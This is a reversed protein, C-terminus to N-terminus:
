LDTIKEASSRSCEGGLLKLKQSFFEGLGDFKFLCGFTYHFSSGRTTFPIDQVIRPPSAVKSIKTSTDVVRPTLHQTNTKFIHLDRLRGLRSLYSNGRVFLREWQDSHWSVRRFPLTRATQYNSLIIECPYIPSPPRPTTSSSFNPRASGNTNNPTDSTTPGPHHANLHDLARTPRMCLSSRLMLACFYGYHWKAGM